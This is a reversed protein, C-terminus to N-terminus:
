AGPIRVAAGSASRSGPPYSAAQPVAHPTYARGEDTAGEMLKELEGKDLWGGRGTPGMVLAKLIDAPRSFAALRRSRM